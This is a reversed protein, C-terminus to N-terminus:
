DTASLHLPMESSDLRVVAARLHEATVDLYVATTTLDRHGLLLQVERLNAGKELLQTAFFHRLSHPHFGDLGAAKALGTVIRYVSRGNLGNFVKQQATKGACQQRLPIVIRESMPIVRQRRGKGLRVLICQRNFDLDCVQLELLESKRLGTYAFTLLLAENRRKQAATQHYLGKRAQAVLGEFDGPDYYPPLTEPKRLRLKLPQRIFEFFPRLAHYYLIVSRPQYGQERLHALFQKATQVNVERDGLWTQYRIAVGWYRDITKPDRDSESLEKHYVEFLNTM